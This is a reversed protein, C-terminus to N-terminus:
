KGDKDISFTELKTYCNKMQISLDNYDSSWSQLSGSIDTVLSTFSLYTDYYEKLFNYEEELEEPPNKLSSLIGNINEKEQNIKDVKTSFEVDSYLNSIATNYDYFHDKDMYEWAEKFSANKSLKEKVTYKDTIENFKKQIANDWVSYILIACDDTKKSSSQILEIASSFNKKYESIRHEQKRRNNVMILSVTVIAAILLIVLISVWKINFTNEIRYGCNPCKKAKDSIEKGCEPCNIMSMVKEEM